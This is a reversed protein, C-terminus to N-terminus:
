ANLVEDMSLNGKVACHRRSSWPQAMTSSIRLSSQAQPENLAQASAASAILQDSAVVHGGVGSEFSCQCQVPETKSRDGTRDGRDRVIRAACQQGVEFPRAGPPDRRRIQGVAALRRTGQEFEASFALRLFFQRLARLLFRLRPAHNNAGGVVSRHFRVLIRLRGVPFRSLILLVLLRLQRSQKNLVLSFDADFGGDGRLDAKDLAKNPKPRIM